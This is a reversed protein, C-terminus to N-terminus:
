SGHLFGQSLLLISFFVYMIFVTLFFIRPDTGRVLNVGFTLNKM